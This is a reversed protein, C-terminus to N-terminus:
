CARHFVSGKAANMGQRLKQEFRGAGADFHDSQVGLRGHRKRREIQALGQDYDDAAFTFPHTFRRASCAASQGVQYSWTLDVREVGGHSSGECQVFYAFVSRCRSGLHREVNRVGGPLYQPACLGNLPVRFICAGRGIVGKKDLM